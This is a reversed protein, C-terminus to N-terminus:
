HKLHKKKKHFCSRLVPIMAYALCINGQREYGWSFSCGCSRLMTKNLEKKTLKSTMM